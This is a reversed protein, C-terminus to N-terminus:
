LLFLLFYKKARYAPNLGNSRVIYITRGLYASNKIPLTYTNYPLIFRMCPCGTADLLVIEHNCDVARVSRRGDDHHIIRIYIYDIKDVNSLVM